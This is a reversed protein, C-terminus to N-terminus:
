VIQRSRHNKERFLLHAYTRWLHMCGIMEGSLLCYVIDFNKVKGLMGNSALDLVAEGM